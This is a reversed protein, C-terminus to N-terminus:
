FQLIYYDISPQFDVANSLEKGSYYHDKMQMDLEVHRFDSENFNNKGQRWPHPRYIIKLDGYIGRNFELEEELEKLAGVEDM